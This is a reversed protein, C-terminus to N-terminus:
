RALRLLVAGGLMAATALVKALDLREKLFFVGILLAFVVSTERLATVLAIPAQTFAWTVLAYAVFSAGGGLVFIMRGAPGAMRRMTGPHRRMLFLAMLVSNVLAVWAYFGLPSGSIRAGYGDVLSYSAIFMGTVLAMGAARGNRLGDARRVAALSIIGLAIIAIALLEAGSLHVGLATVSVFAVILPASGRAIPYVQSLDGMEYARMLFLQYGMHLALGAAMWPLAAMDPMPALWISTLAFPTHGVVVAGMALKKDTGGKVAANWVAHLLAAGIVALFVTLSM